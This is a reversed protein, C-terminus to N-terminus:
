RIAKDVIENWEGTFRELEIVNFGERGVKRQCQGYEVRHQDFCRQGSPFEFVTLGRADKHESFRRGSRNRIYAAQLQGLSTAEDVITRWGVFFASCRAQHCAIAGGGLHHIRYVRNVM